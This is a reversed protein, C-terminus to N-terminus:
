RSGYQYISQSSPTGNVQGTLANQVLVTAGVAVVVGVVIAIILRVMASRRLARNSSLLLM